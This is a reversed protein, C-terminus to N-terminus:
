GVYRHNLVYVMPQHSISQKQHNTFEKIAVLILYRSLRARNGFRHRIHHEEVEYAMFGMISSNIAILGLSAYLKNENQCTRGFGSFRKNTSGRTEIYTYLSM